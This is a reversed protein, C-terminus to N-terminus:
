RGGSFHSWAKTEDHSIENVFLNMFILLSIRNGLQIIKLVDHWLKLEGTNGSQFPSHLPHGAGARPPRAYLFRV